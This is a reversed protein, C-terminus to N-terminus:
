QPNQNTQANNMPAAGQRKHGKFRNARQERMAKLQQQQEPTLIQRFEREAKVRLIGLDAKIPALKAAQAKIAAEDLTDAKMLDRMKGSEERLQQMLPKAAERSKTFIDKAQQKQADTLNLRTAMKDFFKGHQGAPCGGPGGPCGAAQSVAATGGLAMVTATIIAFKRLGANMTSGGKFKSDIDALRIFSVITVFILIFCNSFSLM